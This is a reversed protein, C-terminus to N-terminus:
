AKSGGVTFMAGPAVTQQVFVPTSVCLTRDSVPANSEPSSGGCAVKAKVNVLSPVYPYWQEGCGIM